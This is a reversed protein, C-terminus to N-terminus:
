TGQWCGLRQLTGTPWESDGDKGGSGVCRTCHGAPPGFFLGGSLRSYLPGKPANFFASMIRNTVCQCECHRGGYTPLCAAPSFRCRCSGRRQVLSLRLKVKDMQFSDSFLPRLSFPLWCSCEACASCVLQMRVARGVLWCSLFRFRPGSGREM